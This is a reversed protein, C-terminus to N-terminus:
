LSNTKQRYVYYYKILVVCIMGLSGTFFGYYVRLPRPHRLTSAAFFKRHLNPCGGSSRKSEFCTERRTKPSCLIWLYERAFLAFFAFIRVKRM